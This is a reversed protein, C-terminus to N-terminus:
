EKEETVIARMDKNLIWGPMGPQGLVCNIGFTPKPTDARRPRHKGLWGNPLGDTRAIGTAQDVATVSCRVSMEGFGLTQAGVRIRAIVDEANPPLGRLVLNPRFPAMAVPPHGEEIQGNMWALTSESCVLLQGGDSLQTRAETGCRHLDPVQFVQDWPWVAFQVNDICYSHKSRSRRLFARVWETVRGHDIVVTRIDNEESTVRIRRENARDRREGIMHPELVLPDMGEARYVLDDGELSPKITTLKPELRQCFRIGDYDESGGRLVLMAMRDYYRHNPTGLGTGTVLASGLELMGFSKVPSIGIFALEVTRGVVNPNDLLTKEYAGLNPRSEALAQRRKSM